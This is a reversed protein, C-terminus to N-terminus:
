VFMWIYPMLKYCLVRQAKSSPQKDGEYVHTYIYIYIYTYQKRYDILFKKNEYIYKNKLSIKSVHKTFYYKFYCCLKNVNIQVIHEYKLVLYEWLIIADENWRSYIYITRIYMFINQHIENIHTLALM